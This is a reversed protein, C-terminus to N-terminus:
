LRAMIEDKLDVSIEETRTAPNKGTMCRSKHTRLCVGTEKDFMHLLPLQYIFRPICRLATFRGERNTTFGLQKKEQKVLKSGFSDM